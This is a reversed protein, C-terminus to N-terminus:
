ARKSKKFMEEMVEAMPKGLYNKEIIDNIVRNVSVGRKEAEAEVELMMEKSMRVPYQNTKKLYNNEFEGMNKSVDKAKKLQKSITRNLAHDALQKPTFRRCKGKRKYQRKVM